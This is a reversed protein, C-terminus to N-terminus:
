RARTRELSNNPPTNKPDITFATLEFKFYGDVGKKGGAYFKIPFGLKSDFEMHVDDHGASLMSRALRFLAPVTGLVDPRAECESTRASRSQGEVVHFTQTSCGYTSLFTSYQVTFSYSPIASSQWLHEARDLSANADTLKNSRTAGSVVFVVALLVAVKRM